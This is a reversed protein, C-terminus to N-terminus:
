QKELLARQASLQAQRALDISDGLVRAAEQPSHFGMSNEASIFDWRMQAKRHLDRAEALKEDPVGAAMAAKIGDMAALLATEARTMQSFTTDQITLVRQRMEAESERHCTLCSTDIHMLPTNVWHSSVKTAGVRTYPMHCDACAVGSKAHIGTSYLEFDPHQMKVTPTKTESNTWDSFNGIDKYYKDMDDVTLGNKWPFTVYTKKSPDASSTAFYYEVHCQACVYTRMEQRTAKSVDIGRSAMAEKFAPRTITLEMTKADHCDACSISYMVGFKSTLDKVPTDYFGQVGLQNMLLPVQPSKCTMCSGPKADGLRKTALMDSLANAHGREERYEVAFSYGAFLRLMTQDKDLKSLAESGGYRGYKSYTAYETTNITNHWSEYQQPFNQKWVEPNPEGPAIDVVKFYSLRAEQQHTFVSVLLLTVAVTAIVTVLFVPILWRTRLM